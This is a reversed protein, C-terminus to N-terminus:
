DYLTSYAINVSPVILNTNLKIKTHKDYELPLRDTRGYRNIIEYISIPRCCRKDM